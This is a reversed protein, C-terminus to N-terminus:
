GSLDREFRRGRSGPWAISEDSTLPTPAVMVELLGALPGVGCTEVRRTVLAERGDPLTVVDGDELNPAPHEITGLDDGTTDHLPSYGAPSGRSGHGGGPLEARAAVPRGKGRQPLHPADGFSAGLRRTRATM